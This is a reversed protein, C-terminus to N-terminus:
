FYDIQYVKEFIPQIFGIFITNM